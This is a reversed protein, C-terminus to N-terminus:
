RAFSAHRATESWRLIYRFDECLGARRASSGVITSAHQL